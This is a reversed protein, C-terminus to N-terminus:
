QTFVFKRNRLFKIVIYKSNNKDIIAGVLDFQTPNIKFMEFADDLDDYIAIISNICNDIIYYEDILSNIDDCTMNVETAPIYTDYNNLKVEYLIESGEVYKVGTGEYINDDTRIYM